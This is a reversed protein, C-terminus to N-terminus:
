INYIKYTSNLAEKSNILIEICKRWCAQCDDEDDCWSPTDRFATVCISEGLKEAISQSDFGEQNMSKIIEEMNM